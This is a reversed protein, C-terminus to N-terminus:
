MDSMSDFMTKNIILWAWSSVIVGDIVLLNTCVVRLPTCDHCALVRVRWNDVWDVKLRILRDDIWGM